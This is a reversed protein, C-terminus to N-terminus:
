VFFFEFNKDEGGFRYYCKIYAIYTSTTRLSPWDVNHFLTKPSTYVARSNTTTTYKFILHKITNINTIAIAVFVAVVVVNVTLCNKAVVTLVVLRPKLLAAFVLYILTLTTVSSNKM